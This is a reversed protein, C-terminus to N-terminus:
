FLVILFNSPQLCNPTVVASLIELIHFFHSCISVVQSFNCLVFETFIVLLFPGVSWNEVTCFLEILIINRRNCNKANRILTAQVNEHTTCDIFAFLDFQEQALYPSSLIYSAHPNLEVCEITWCPFSFFQSTALCSWSAPGGSGCTNLLQQGAGRKNRFSM